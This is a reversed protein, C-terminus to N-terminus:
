PSEAVVLTRPDLLVCQEVLFLWDCDFFPVLSLTVKRASCSHDFESSVPNNLFEGRMPVFPYIDCNM